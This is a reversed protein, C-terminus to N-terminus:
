LPEHVTDRGNPQPAPKSEVDQANGADRQDPWYLLAILGMLVVLPWNRGLLRAAGLAASAGGPVSLLTGLVAIPAQVMAQAAADSMIESTDSAEASKEAAEEQEERVSVVAAAVAGIVALGGAVLWYAMVQGFREVLMVTCAALAFGIAIVFPVAVSARAIYKLLLGSAASKANNILGAFM